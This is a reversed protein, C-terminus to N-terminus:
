SVIRYKEFILVSPLCSSERFLMKDGALAKLKREPIKLPNKLCIRRVNENDLAFKVGTGQHFRANRVILNQGDGIARLFPWGIIRAVLAAIFVDFSREPCTEASDLTEYPATVTVSAAVCQPLIHDPKQPRGAEPKDIPRLSALVGVIKEDLVARCSYEVQDLM